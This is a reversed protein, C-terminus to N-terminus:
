SYENYYDHFSSKWFIDTLASKQAILCWSLPDKRVAMVWAQGKADKSYVWNKEGKM